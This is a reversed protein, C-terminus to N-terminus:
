RWDPMEGNEIFLARNTGIWESQTNLELDMVWIDKPTADDNEGNTFIVQAGTPSFRADIDNTGNAKGTSLDYEMGTELDKLFIHSNLQRGDPSEFGDLDMTFLMKKGDISFKPGGISGPLDDVLITQTGTNDCLLIQSKYPQDGVTRVIIDGDSRWDVEVFSQNGTTEVIMELGTGNANIKYLRNGNMYLMADSAPSWCYNFKLPYLGTLPLTTVQQKDSGDINQTFLQVNVEENSLYALRQRNPSLHPRWQSSQPQQFAVEGGQLNSCYLNYVSNEKRTFFLRHDPFAATEFRWIEGFVPDAKGDNVIVQWYYTAGYDLDTMEFHPELLDTAVKTNPSEGGKFFVLDYRLTDAENPDLAEWSLTLVNPIEGAANAPMPNFPLGPASNNDTTKKLLLTIKTTSNGSVNVIELETKYGEKQAQITLSGAPLSDLVFKGDAGTLIVSSTPNTSIRVNEIPTFDEAFVVEGAITGLFVPEVFEDRCGSCFAILIFLFSYIKISKM